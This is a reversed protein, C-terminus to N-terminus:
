KLIADFEISVHKVDFGHLADSINQVAIVDHVADPIDCNSLVDLTPIDLEKFINCRKFDFVVDDSTEFKSFEEVVSINFKKFPDLGLICLKNFIELSSSTFAKFWEKDSIYLVNFLESTSNFIENFIEFIVSGNFKVELVFTEFASNDIKDFLTSACFELKNFLLLVNSSNFHDFLVFKWFIDFLIFVIWYINYYCIESKNSIM